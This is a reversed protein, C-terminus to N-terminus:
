CPMPSRYRLRFPTRAPVGAVSGWGLVRKLAVALQSEFVPKVLVLSAGMAEAQQLREDDYGTVVVVRAPTERVIRRTAELGNGERLKIGMFVIDPRLERALAVGQTAERATGLVSCGLGELEVRLAMSVIFEEEIILVRPPTAGSDGVMGYGTIDSSDM